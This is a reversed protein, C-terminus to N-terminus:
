ILSQLHQVMTDLSVFEFAYQWFTVFDQDKLTASENETLLVHNVKTGNTSGMDKIGFSENDEILFAAHLKSIKGARIIIDNNKARGVTIKSSFVNRDSKLLPVAWKRSPLTKEALSASDPMTQITKPDLWESTGGPFRDTAVLFLFPHSYKRRFGSDGLEKLEKSLTSVSLTEIENPQM